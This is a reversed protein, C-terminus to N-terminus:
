VFCQYASAVIYYDTTSRYQECCFCTRGGPDPCTWLYYNPAARCSSLSTNPPCYVLDCCDGLCDTVAGAAGTNVLMLGGVGLAAGGIRALFKKRPHPKDSILTELTM